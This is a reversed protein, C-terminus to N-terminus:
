ELFKEEICELLLLLARDWYAWTHGGPTEHYEYNISRSSLQEALARNTELLFDNTGCALYFYPRPTQHPTSLLQFIDNEGRTRSGEDGFVERLKPRFEPRQIDLNQAANLAGSLSGVFAFLQPYKLGLKVAGYGGMSLGAIARGKAARITKYKEDIESILDKVIYDEFRDLPVTASNTYWADDADPMVILLRLKGDYNQLGTYSDWNRYDGYLGHLLYLVRVRGNKEYDRPILVRYRMERKLSVSYFVSDRVLDLQSARAGPIPPKESALAPAFALPILSLFLILRLINTM